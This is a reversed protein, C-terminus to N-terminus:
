SQDQVFAPLFARYIAEQIKSRYDEQHLLNNTMTPYTRNSLFIYILKYEPDVWVCTGTFGFHGFASESAFRCINPRSRSSLEKMDFGIGRRTSGLHRKTFYKITGEKLYQSGGYNGKNLLMQYIKVLDSCNSFLGAHGSVGRLMAAGMDHVYGQLSTHRFYDDEETPVIEDKRIRDLPNYTTRVMNLPDYFEDRMYKDISKGSLREVIRAIIYFGLDSYRYNKNPRLESDVILQWITDPYDSRLYLDDLVKVNHTESNENAYYTTSPKHSESALTAKYFPIWPKLGAQHTMIEELTMDAKNTGKLEPLYTEIPTKVKLKGEDFLKMVAMTSATIKTVSALDYVHHLQVPRSKAYTHYGYEKQYVVKDNKAVLLQAGPAAKKSILEYVLRDIEKLGESSMGIREPVSYGIRYNAKTDFGMGYASKASATIPLRGKFPIAGFLAQAALNQTLRDEDYCMVVHDFDDFYKLSYPNGFIVLIVKTRQNLAQLFSLVSADIGFNNRAHQSMGHLSVVVYDRKGIKSLLSTKEVDEIKSPAIYRPIEEYENIMVQFHTLLSTGISLSAINKQHDVLPVIEDQNRVLTLANEILQHKLGLVKNNRLDLQLGYEDVPKYQDLGMRYKARLIRKVSENIREEYIKGDEVNQKIYAFAKDIDNPLTLVDNGAELAKIEVIGNEFHKAVGQMELADTYVLGNFGLKKRLLDNIVRESLTTPINERDDLALVNLHAVMISALDQKILTEFPFLEVEELRELSHTIIPLEHHSDVDTDGHGPFHKACAAVGADQMGRMYMYSKTTVNYKDEGFSRFNIVPNNANNNIDVVPAFNIQVGVRQLQRAIEKGYEYILSNDQIAGLMLARPFDIVGEKFRMGLGWEADMAVMLPVKGSLEQYSNILDVQKRPSGQFFCLGGVHFTNIQRKVETVHDDALNSHARIMFLQGIREDLSLQSFISDVWKDEDSQSWVFSSWMLCFALLYTSRTVNM